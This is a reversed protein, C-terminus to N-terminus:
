QHAKSGFKDLMTMYGIEFGLVMLSYSIFAIVLPHSDPTQPTGESKDGAPPYITNGRARCTNESYKGTPPYPSRPAGKPRVSKPGQALAPKPEQTRALEPGQARAPKLRQAQAPRPGPEPEARGSGPGPYPGAPARTRGPGQDTGARPQSPNLKPRM